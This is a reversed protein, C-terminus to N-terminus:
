VTTNSEPFRFFQPLVEKWVAKSIGKLKKGTFLIEILEAESSHLLELSDLMLRDAAERKGQNYFQFAKVIKGRATTLTLSCNGIPFKSPKYQKFVAHKVEKFDVNYMCNVYWQLTSNGRFMKLFKIQENRDEIESARTFIEPLLLSKNIYVRKSM